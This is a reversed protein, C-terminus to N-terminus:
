CTIIYKADFKAIKVQRLLHIDVPVLGQEVVVRPLLEPDIPAVGEAAERVPRGQHGVGGCIGAAVGGGAGDIDRQLTLSTAM